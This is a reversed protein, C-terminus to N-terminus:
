LQEIPQGIFYHMPLFQTTWIYINLPCGLSLGTVFNVFFFLLVYDLYSKIRLRLLKKFFIQMMGM